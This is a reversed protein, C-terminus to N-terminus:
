PCNKCRFNILAQVICDTLNKIFLEEICVDHGYLLNTLSMLAWLLNFFFLIIGIMILIVELWERTMLNVFVSM